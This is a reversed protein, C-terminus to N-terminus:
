RQIKGKVQLFSGSLEIEAVEYRAYPNDGFRWGAPMARALGHRRLADDESRLVVVVVGARELVSRVTSDEPEINLLVSRIMSSPISHEYMLPSGKGYFRSRTYTKSLDVGNGQFWHLAATSLRYRAAALTYKAIMNSLLYGADGHLDRVEPIQLGATIWRRLALQDQNEAPERAAPESPMIM